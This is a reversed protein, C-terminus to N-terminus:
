QVAQALLDELWIDDEFLRAKWGTALRDLLVAQAMGTYYFRGDGDAGAMLRIQNVENNWHQSYSQYGHFEPDSAVSEIPKYGPTTAALRYSSFEAYKGIGEVWERHREYDILDAPLGARQRRASRQALFDEALAHAEDDTGARLAENLLNLETQWDEKFAEDEYPYRDARQQGAQEGAELREGALIGQYAHAAEHLLATGWRDSGPMFLNTAIKYPFVPKLPAPLDARFQEALAIRFWDLTMLNASYHEGIQTTFNQPGVGEMLPQRYYPEGLATDDPVREWAAGAQRGSPVSVWGDPPDQVGILFAYEENYLIVPIKAQDWGPLVEAGLTQRLHITEAIRAKDFESLREVVPSRRPFSQNVLASVGALLLCLGLLGGAALLMIRGCSRKRKTAM